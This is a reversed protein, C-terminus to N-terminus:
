SSTRIFRALDTLDRGTADATVGLEEAPLNLRNVWYTPYGFGRAGAADWGAFAAFLIEERKLQFADIAM